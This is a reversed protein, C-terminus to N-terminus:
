AQSRRKLNLRGRGHDHYFKEEWAGDRSDKEIYPLHTLHFHGCYSCWYKRRPIDKRRGLSDNKLHHRCSNLIHGAERESYCRKGTEMCILSNDSSYGM